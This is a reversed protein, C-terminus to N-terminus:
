LEPWIPILLGIGWVFIAVALVALVAATLLVEPLRALPTAYSGLLTILLTAALLGLNQITLAFAAVAAPILLVPRLRIRGVPAGDVTLGRALIFAGLLALAICLLRPMYGASMRAATGLPYDRAIWLGGLALALFLLGALTDQQSRVRVRV